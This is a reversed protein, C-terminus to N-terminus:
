VQLFERLLYFVVLVARFSGSHLKVFFVFSKDVVLGVFDLLLGLDLVAM